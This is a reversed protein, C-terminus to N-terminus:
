SAGASLLYSIVWIAFLIEVNPATSTTSLFFSLFLHSDTQKITIYHLMKEKYNNASFDHSRTMHMTM